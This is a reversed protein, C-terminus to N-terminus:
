TFSFRPLPFSLIILSLFLGWAMQKRSQGLKWIEHARKCISLKRQFEKECDFYYQPTKDFAFWTIFMPYHEVAYWVFNYVHYSLCRVNLFYEYNLLKPTPPLPLIPPETYKEQCVSRNRLSLILCFYVRMYLNSLIKNESIFTQCSFLVAIFLTFYLTFKSAMKHGWGM